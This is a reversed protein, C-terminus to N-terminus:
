DTRYTDQSQQPRAHGDERRVLRVGDRSAYYRCYM